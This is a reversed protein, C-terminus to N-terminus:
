AGKKVDAKEASSEDADQSPQVASINVSPKPASEAKAGEPKSSSAPTAASGKAAAKQAAVQAAQAKRTSVNGSSMVEKKDGYDKVVGDQLLMVKEVYNLVSPRQTVVITTLKQTKALGLAKHLIAEGQQDLASNPEDLVLVSPNGYFARALGILQAQGGSPMFSAKSIVTDYGQPLKMILEHVGARKAAELAMEPPDNVRLRAINERVSKDEFFTVQQPMYGMHLGRAVPDWVKIDQGDLSVSGANPLLYGVMLRALTSKGAGSPGIIAVSDGAHIVGNIGRLIPTAGPRPVYAVRDLKIEGNPRPLPTRDVPIDLEKLREILRGRAVVAQKLTRWSSVIQEIPQVARGGIMASAFIVGGSAQDYLVLMAGSAIMLVQLILRLAKSASTFNTQKANSDVFQKLADGHLKGWDAVAERYLGQARVLEQSNLHSQLSQSSAMIAQMYEENEKATSRDAWIGMALVIACGILVVVGLVPHVWFILLVFFPMLPLEFLAAMAPSAIIQRMMTLDKVSQANSDSQRSLEGALLQGAMRTELNIAAKSLLRQKISDFIGSCVLIVLAFILMAVLTETSRTKLVKDFVQFMFVPMALMCVAAIFSYFSAARFSKRLEFEAEKYEKILAM